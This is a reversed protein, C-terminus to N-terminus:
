GKSARLIILGISKRIRDRVRRAADTQWPEVYMLADRLIEQQDEIIEAISQRVTNPVRALSPDPARLAKIARNARSM